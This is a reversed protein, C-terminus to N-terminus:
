LSVILDHTMWAYGQWIMVDKLNDVNDLIGANARLQPKAM